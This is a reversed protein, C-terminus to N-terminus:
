GLFVFVVTDPNGGQPVFCFGPCLDKLLVLESLLVNSSDELMTDWEIKEPWERNRTLSTVTKGIRAARTQIRQRSVEVGKQRALKRKPRSGNLHPFSKLEM